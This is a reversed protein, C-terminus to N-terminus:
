GSRAKVGSRKAAELPSEAPGALVKGDPYFRSGHCPCDWTREADNWHVLCGMHTCTASVLRAKGREDRSCALWQGDSKLIKGEGRKVDRTSKADPRAFLDKVLYYPYDFNEQLYNWSGRLKKRNVDFLDQWPNENGLIRDCIIMGALTGFTMGNGAFGTAVFQRDATAGIYPLGDSTEIVQGSWQRDVKADPLYERLTDTLRQYHERADTEQGTKHDQGGFIVSDGDEGSDVRLYYYPDSTDWFSAQSARGEAIQAQVAYTSYSALKSQFLTAPVLSMKGMLPVHTAIVLHQCRVTRGGIRVALPQDIVESVESQEFIACGEGDIAQALGALYKLPHFKAQNSFRIGPRNFLPVRDHFAAHFGLDRALEYDALLHHDDPPSTRLPALLFGPIRQFDCDISEADVISEITSMAAAGGEWVLHAAERGFNAALDCLRFDTVYTLHATTHGTDGSGLRNREVLGVTKGALKLFYATSLGTLGGGIVVVDFEQDDRLRQFTTIPEDQWAPITNM